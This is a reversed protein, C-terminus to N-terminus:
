LFNKMNSKSTYLYYLKSVVEFSPKKIKGTELQSLYANSIGTAEEVNRLTMNANHRYERFNFMTPITKIILADDKEALRWGCEYSVARAGYPSYPRTDVEVGNANLVFARYGEFMYRMHQLNSDPHCTNDIQEKIGESSLIVNNKM